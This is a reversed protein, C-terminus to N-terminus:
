QNRPRLIEVGDVTAVRHWGGADLFRQFQPFHRPPYAGALRQNATSMNAVLVPPHRKVDVLFDHWAGPVAYKEGVHSPPRGGSTGTVFGTTAFRIAPQRQSDWYVEPAQGWVLVKQGAATHHGVYSAVDLAIQTDKNNGDTFAPPLFYAVSTVALVGVLAVVWPRTRLPQADVGRVALLVLPPLLQLYYHPFFRLGAVVAFVGSLLWLWLDSDDRRHKWAFPLLLVLGASGFLFWGTQRAGLELAYGLVGSADLYGRDSTFVWFLFDHPGFVLTAVVIPVVFAVGLAVLGRWRRARWALVALPLLAAAATQKTLTALGLTLGAAAPRQRIGLLVAGTMVPLMFVEFNAAQADTPFFATAALLYLVGALLDAHRWRFRRRAEVALLLATLAHALVALVRVSGLDDSGTLKFVAAYLYPVVPPKRDVTDVYLRGGGVLVQAQTALYAEDTNFVQNSFTPIRLIATLGLFLVLLLLLAIWSHRGAGVLPPTEPDAPSGPQAPDDVLEV